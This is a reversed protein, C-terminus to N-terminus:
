NVICLNCIYIVLFLSFNVKAVIRRNEIEEALCRAHDRLPPPLGVIDDVLEYYSLQYLESGNWQVEAVAAKYEKTLTHVQEV